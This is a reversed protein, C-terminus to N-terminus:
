PQTTPEAGPLEIGFDKLRDQTMRHGILALTVPTFVILPFIFLVSLVWRYWPLLCTPGIGPWVFQAGDRHRQSLRPSDWYRAAGRAPVSVGPRRGWLLMFYVALFGLAQIFLQGSGTYFVFASAWVTCLM